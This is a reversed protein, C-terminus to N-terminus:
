SPIPCEFYSIIFLRNSGLMSGSPPTYEISFLTAFVWGHDFISSSPYQSNLYCFGFVWSALGEFLITECPNVHLMFTKHVSNYVKM